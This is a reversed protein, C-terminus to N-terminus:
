AEPEAAPAEEAPAAEAVPAAEEVVPAAVAAAAPVASAVSETSLAAVRKDLGKFRKAAAPRAKFFEELVGVTKLMHAVTDTPQAGEMLWHLARDTKIKIREDRNRAIPNYTGLVEVSASDRGATSKAVVVRYFPRHKNGLRTLRIKVV